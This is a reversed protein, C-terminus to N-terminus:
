QGEPAEPNAVGLEALLGQRTITVAGPQSRYSRREIPQELFIIAELREDKLLKLLLRDVAFARVRPVEPAQSYQAFALADDSTAFAPLTRTKQGGGGAGGGGSSPNVIYLYYAGHSLRAAVAAVLDNIQQQQCGLLTAVQVLLEDIM